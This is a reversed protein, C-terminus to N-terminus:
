KVKEEEISEINSITRAFENRADEFAGITQYLSLEVSDNFTAMINEINESIDYECEFEDNIYPILYYIVKETVRTVEIEGNFISLIEKLKEIKKM